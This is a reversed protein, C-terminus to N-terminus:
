NLLTGRAFVITFETGGDRKPMMNGHLQKILTSVIQMGLSTTHSPDIDAPIGVGDDRIVLTNLGASDRYFEVEISGSDRGVFAYKFINTLLENIILGCSIAVDVDIDEIRQQVIRIRHDSYARSLDATLLSVYQRMNVHAFGDSSYLQEHVLAMSGIRNRSEQFAAATEPDQTQNAELSLMSFVVQLNNKARHHVEKLLLERDQLSQNLAIDRQQIQELMENFCRVLVSVEDDGRDTICCTM